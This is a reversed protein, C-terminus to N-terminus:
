VKKEVPFLPHYELLWASDGTIEIDDETVGEPLADRVEAGLRESSPRNVTYNSGAKSIVYNRYKM